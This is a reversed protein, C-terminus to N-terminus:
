SHAVPNSTRSIDLTYSCARAQQGTGVGVHTAPTSSAPNSARPFGSPAREMRPSCALPLGSPHIATTRQLAAAFWVHGIEIVGAEPAIRTYSVWGLPGEDASRLVTFYMPDESTEVVTLQQRLAEASEYPGDPLYTWVTPDGGPPHSVAYLREADRAADIPVLSM